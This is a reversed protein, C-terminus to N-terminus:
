LRLYPVHHQCDGLALSESEGMSLCCLDLSQAFGPLSGCHEEIAHSVIERRGQTLRFLDFWENLEDDGGVNSSMQRLHTEPAVFLLYTILM